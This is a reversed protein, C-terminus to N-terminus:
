SFFADWEGDSNQTPNPNVHAWNQQWGGLFLTTDQTLGLETNPISIPTNDVASPFMENNLPWESTGPAFSEQSLHQSTSMPYTQGHQYFNSQPALTAEGFRISAQAQSEPPSIIAAETSFLLHEQLPQQIGTPFQRMVGEEQSHYLLSAAEQSDGFETPVEPVSQHYYESESVDDTYEYVFSACHKRIDEETQCQHLTYTIAESGNDMVYSLSTADGEQRNITWQGGPRPELATLASIPPIKPSSM